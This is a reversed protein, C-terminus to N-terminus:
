YGSRGSSFVASRTVGEKSAGSLHRYQALHKRTNESKTSYAAAHGVALARLLDDTYGDGKELTGRELRATMFQLYLHSSPFGELTRYNKVTKIEEVPNELGPLEFQGDNISAMFASFDRATLSIQYVRLEPFEDKAMQLTTISNWRDAVLVKINLAKILPRIVGSYMAPFDIHTGKFPIVELLATAKLVSKDPYTATLSFSNGSLGADMSLIGPPIEEPLKVLEVSARTRVIATEDEVDHGGLREVKIRHSSVVNPDFLPILTHDPFLSAHLSPPRAGFDREAKVKNKRYAAVIVPHEREYLPSIEWTALQVGLSMAEPEDSERLLRMIKDRESQPSSMNLILGTPIHNIGKKYLSHVETRVTMLSNDLSTFVEDANAHERADDDEDPDDEDSSKKPLPFWGLEDIAALVRTDGRLSRKVPGMPYCDINHHFFRFFLVNKKYYEKGHMKGYHDLLSFYEKYWDSANIIEVFPNWLLRIARGATLGVFTFTLPTFDQIGRCITSLRPAKLLRHMVNSSLTGAFSSKGGRQGICLVLQNYDPLEHNLVMSSKTAGCKPCVGSKLLTFKRSLDEPDMDVPISEVDQFWRPKTCRPCYEGFLHTAIWLQRAFPPKISKGNVRHCFDWYNDARPLDRDDVKLDRVSNTEPDYSDHMAKLIFNTGQPTELMDEADEEDGLKDVDRLLRKLKKNDGHQALRGQQKSSKTSKPMLIPSSQPETQLFEFGRVGEIEKLKRFNSCRFSPGKQPETCTLWLSCRMCSLKSTM